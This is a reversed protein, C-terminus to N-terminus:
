RDFPRYFITVVNTSILDAQTNAATLKINGGLLPAEYPVSLVQTVNTYQVAGYDAALAVGASTTGVFRPRAFGRAAGVVAKSWYTEIATTSDFTAITLTTTVAGNKVYEIKDLEGSIPLAASAQTATGTCILTVTYSDAQVMAALAGVILAIGIVKKM